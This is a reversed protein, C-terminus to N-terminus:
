RTRRRDKKESAHILMMDKAVQRKEDVELIRDYQAAIDNVRKRSGDRELQRMEYAKNLPHERERELEKRIDKQREAIRDRERAERDLM